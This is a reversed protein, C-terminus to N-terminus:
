SPKAITFYHIPMLPRDRSETSKITIVEWSSQKLLQKIGHITFRWNDPLPGHIRFNFPTTIYLLGNGSIKKRLNQLALFPNSVHELVEFLLIADYQDKIKEIDDISCIDANFTSNVDKSIDLTHHISNHLSIKNIESPGIELIKNGDIDLPLIYKDTIRQVNERIIRLATIDFDSPKM